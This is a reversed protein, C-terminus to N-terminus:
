RGGCPSQTEDSNVTLVGERGAKKKRSKELEEGGRLM